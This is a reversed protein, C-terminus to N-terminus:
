GNWVSFKLIRMEAVELVAEQKRTLAVEELGYLMPPRVVTKYKKGKIKASIRKDCIVGFVRRWGNWGAQLRKKM